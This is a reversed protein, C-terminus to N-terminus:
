NGRLVPLMQEIQELPLAERKLRRSLKYTNRSVPKRKNLEHLIALYGKVAGMAMRGPRGLQFGLKLGNVTTALLHAPLNLWPVNYWAFLIDNRRGFLDMRRFDRRPSEFHHIPDARGIRVVYGADLMRICYDHEEGQHFLFERYGGLRLFLARRMAHATGIFDYGCIIGAEGPARQHVFDNQKINIFPIAVAGVRPHNFEALTQEITRPSPFAADDDISFVIDGSALQAGRNRQVILGRSPDARDLRVKPFESRIMESSGDSSGDDIVLVEAKATQELASSVAKRLEDRRNKTTIVVTANM